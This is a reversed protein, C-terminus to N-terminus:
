LGDVILAAPAFGLNGRVVRRCTDAWEEVSIVEGTEPDVTKRAYTRRCVEEGIPGWPPPPVMAVFAETDIAGDLYAAIASRDLEDLQVPVTATAPPALLTM